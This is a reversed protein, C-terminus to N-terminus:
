KTAVKRKQELMHQIAAPLRPNSLLEAVDREMANRVILFPDLQATLEQVQKELDPAKGPKANHHVDLLAALQKTVLRTKAEDSGVLLWAADGAAQARIAKWRAADAKKGKDLATELVDLLDVDDEDLVHLYALVQTPQLMRIVQSADRRAPESIPVRDDLQIRDKDMIEGLKEKFEDIREDDDDLIAKRLDKMTKLFAPTVKGSHAKPVSAAGKSFQLLSELQAPTLDLRSLTQLAVIELSLLQPDDQAPAATKQAFAAPTALNAFLIAALSFSMLRTM